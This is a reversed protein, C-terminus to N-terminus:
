TRLGHHLKSMTTYQTKRCDSHREQTNLPHSRHYAGVRQVHDPGSQGELHSAIMAVSSNYIGELGDVKLYNAESEVFLCVRCVKYM